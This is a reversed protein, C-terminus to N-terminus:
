SKVLEDEILIEISDLATIVLTQIQGIEPDSKNTLNRSSLSSKAFMLLKNQSSKLIIIHILHRCLLLLFFGLSKDTSQLILDVLILCEQVINVFSDNPLSMRSLLVLATCLELGFVLELLPEVLLLIEALIWLLFAAIDKGIPPSLLLVSASQIILIISGGPLEDVM